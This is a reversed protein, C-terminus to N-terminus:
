VYLAATEAHRELMAAYVRNQRWAVARPLVGSNDRTLLEYYATVVHYCFYARLENQSFDTESAYGQLFAAAAATRVSRRGPRYASLAIDAIFQGADMAAADNRSDEFDVPSARQEDVLVNRLTFNGHIRGTLAGNKMDLGVEIYDRLANGTSEPLRSRPNEYVQDLMRNLNALRNNAVELASGPACSAHHFRGLWSGCNEFHRLLRTNPSRGLQRHFVRRLEFGPCWTTLLASHEPYLGLPEPMSLGSDAAIAYAFKLLDFENRSADLDRDEQKVTRSGRIKLAYKSGTGFHLVRLISRDADYVKEFSVDDSAIATLSLHEAICGRVQRSLEPDM